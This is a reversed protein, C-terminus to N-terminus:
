LQTGEVLRRRVGRFRHRWIANCLAFCGAAGGLGFLLFALASPADDPEEYQATHQFFALLPLIERDADLPHERFTPLMTATAPASLWAGLKKRTEYREFVKTLDPGLRGGGLWGLGGATHCSICATGGNGLRARGTFLERGRKVDDPTFPRDSIQVGAFRSKELKSEAAILDLLREARAATMGAVNPMQVNNAEERLKLAYPDGSQMVGAPDTIFKVLWARKQREEVNKLDPGTLRGGGITHCSSCNTKFDTAADQASAVSALAILLAAPLVLLRAM